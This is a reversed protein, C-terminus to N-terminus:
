LYVKQSKCGTFYFLYNCNIIFNNFRLLNMFKVNRKINLKM